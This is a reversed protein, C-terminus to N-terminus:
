ITMNRKLSWCKFITGRHVDFKFVCVDFRPVFTKEQCVWIPLDLLVSSRQCRRHEFSLPDLTPRDLQLAAFLQFSWPFLLPPDLNSPPPPPQSSIGRARSAHARRIRAQVGNCGLVVRKKRYFHFFSDGKRGCRGDYRYSSRSGLRDDGGRGEDRRGGREEVEKEKVEEEEDKEEEVEERSDHGGEWGVGRSVDVLSPFM